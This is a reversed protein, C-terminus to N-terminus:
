PQELPILGAEAMLDDYAKSLTAPNMMGNSIQMGRGVFHARTENLYADDETLKALVKYTTRLPRLARPIRDESM